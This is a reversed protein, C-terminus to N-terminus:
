NFHKTPQSPKLSNFHYVHVQALDETVAMKRYSYRLIIKLMLYQTGKGLGPTPFRKTNYSRMLKATILYPRM